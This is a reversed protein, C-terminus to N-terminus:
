RWRSYTKAQWSFPPYGNIEQEELFPRTASEDYIRTISEAPNREIIGDVRKLSELIGDEPIDIETDTEEIAKLPKRIVAIKGYNPSNIIFGSYGGDTVKALTSEYDVDGLADKTFVNLPDRPANENQYDAIVYLEKLPIEFKNEVQPIMSERQYPSIEADTIGYWIANPAKNRKVRDAGTGSL